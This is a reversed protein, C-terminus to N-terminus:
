QWSKRRTNLLFLSSSLTRIFLVYLMWRKATCICERTPLLRDTVVVSSQQESVDLLM